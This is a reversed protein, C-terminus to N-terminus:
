VLNMRQAREYCARCVLTVQAFGESEDNWEGGAKAVAEDCARCWANPEDGGDPPHFFGRPRGDRLSQVIHQCVFAAGQEGHESCTVTRSQTM